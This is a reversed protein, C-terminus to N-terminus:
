WQTNRGLMGDSAGMVRVLPQEGRNSSDMLDTALRVSSSHIRGEAVVCSLLLLVACYRGGGARGLRM